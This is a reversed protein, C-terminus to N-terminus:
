RGGRAAAPTERAGVRDVVRERGAGLRGPDRDVQDVLADVRPGHEPLLGHRDLRARREDLPEVRDLVPEQGLDDGAQERPLRARHPRQDRDVLLRADLHERGPEGLEAELEDGRAARRREELVDAQRHCADLLYGPRRLHEAAADLREVRRDVGADEGPALEVLVQLREGLLPDLREVEDADIEVREARERAPEPTSSASRISIISTPPGESSRPAALFKAWTAGTQRGSCYSGTRASSRSRLREGGLGAARERRLGEREGGGVVRRDGAPEGLVLEEGVLQREGEALDGVEGVALVGVLRGGVVLLDARALVQERADVLEAAALEGVVVEGVELRRAPDDALEVCGATTTTM